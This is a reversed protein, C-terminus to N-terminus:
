AFPVRQSTDNIIGDTNSDNPCNQPTSQLNAGGCAANAILSAANVKAQIMFVSLFVAIIVLALNGMIFSRANVYFKGIIDQNKIM